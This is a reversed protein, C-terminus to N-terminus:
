FFAMEPLQLYFNGSLLVGDAGIIISKMGNQTSHFEISSSNTEPHGLYM